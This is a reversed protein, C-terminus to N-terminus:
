KIGADRLISKLTGPPVEKTKHHPVPFKKNTKTNIYITHNKGERYVACGNKEILRVLESYRM